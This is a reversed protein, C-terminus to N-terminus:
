YLLTKVKPEANKRRQTNLKPKKMTLALKYDELAKATEGRREYAGARNYYVWANQPCLL